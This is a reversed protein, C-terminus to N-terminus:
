RRRLKSVFGSRKSPPVTPETGSPHTSEYLQVLSEYDSKMCDFHYAFFSEVEAQVYKPLKGDGFVYGYEVSGDGRLAANGNYDLGIIHVKGLYQYPDNPDYRGGISELVFGWRGNDSRWLINIEPYDDLTPERMVFM